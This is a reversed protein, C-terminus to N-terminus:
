PQTAASLSVACARGHRRCRCRGHRRERGDDFGRWPVRHREAGPACRQARRQWDPVARHQERARRLQGVRRPRLARQACHHHHQQRGRLRAFLVADRHQGQLHDLHRLRDRRLVPLGPRRCRLLSGRPRPHFRLLANQPKNTHYNDYLSDQSPLSLSPSTTFTLTQQHTQTPLDCAACLHLKYSSFFPANALTGFTTKNRRLSQPYTPFYVQPTQSSFCRRPCPSPQPKLAATTCDGACNRSRRVGALCWREPGPGACGPVFALRPLARWGFFRHFYWALGPPDSRARTTSFNGDRQRNGHARQRSQGDALDLKGTTTALLLAAVGVIVGVNEGRGNVNWVWHKGWCCDVKKAGCGTTWKKETGHATSHQAASRQGTHPATRHPASEQSVAWGSRRVSFRGWADRAGKGKEVLMGKM